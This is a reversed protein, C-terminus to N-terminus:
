IFTHFETGGSKKRLCKDM